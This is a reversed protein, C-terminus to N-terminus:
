SHGHFPHKYAFWHFAYGYKRCRLGVSLIAPTSEVVYPQIVEKLPPMSARCVEASQTNGNATHFNLAPAEILHKKAHVVESKTVLDHGSGIDMIWEQTNEFVWKGDGCNPSIPAQKRSLAQVHLAASQQAPARSCGNREM